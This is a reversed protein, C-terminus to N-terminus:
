AEDIENNIEKPKGLSEKLKMLFDFLIAGVGNGVIMLIFYWLCKLDFIGAITYYAANAICHEFGALIFISVALFVFIVKGLSYKCERHGRCAIYIMFGCFVALTFISFPRDNQKSNVLNQALSIMEPTVIRTLKALYALLVVGVFNGILCTFLELFYKPKNDLVAGVKGTYLHLDFHIIGFLGLGFFVSGVLKQDMLLLSLYVLVGIVICFGALMSSVLIHLHKRM